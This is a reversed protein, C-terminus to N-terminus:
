PPVPAPEQCSVPIVAAHGPCSSPDTGGIMFDDASVIVVCFENSVNCTLVATISPSGSDRPPDLHPCSLLTAPFAPDLGCAVWNAPDPDASSAATLFLISIPIDDGDRSPEYCWIDVDIDNGASQETPSITLFFPPWCEDSSGGGGARPDPVCVYGGLKPDDIHCIEGYPCEEDTVCEFGCRVPSPPRPENCGFDDAVSVPGADGCGSAVLLGMVLLRRMPVLTVAIWGLM